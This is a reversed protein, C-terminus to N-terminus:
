ILLVCTIMTPSPRFFPYFWVPKILPPDGVLACLHDTSDTSLSDSCVSVVRRQFENIRHTENSILTVNIVAPCKRQKKCSCPLSRGKSEDSNWTIPCIGDNIHSTASLGTLDNEASFSTQPFQIACFFGIGCLLQCALIVFTSVAIRNKLASITKVIGNM